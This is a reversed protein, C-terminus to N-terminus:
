RSLRDLITEIHVQDSKYNGTLAYMVLNIGSRMAMEADRSDDGSAWSAAWNKSGIIVSSVHERDGNEPREVYVTGFNDQGPLNSLLYFSKSLSHQDEIRQLPQISVDDGLVRRLLTYNGGQVDFLIVGGNDLYSQVRASAEESLPEADNRVPWYIFPFYSIEDSEIDIAAVGEPEITTKDTLGEVLAEMGSRTVNNVGASSTTVYGLHLGNIYRIQEATLEAREPTAQETSVVPPVAEQAMVSPAAVATFAALLFGAFTKNIGM